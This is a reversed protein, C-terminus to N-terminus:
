DEDFSRERKPPRADLEPGVVAILASTRLLLKHKTADELSDFSPKRGNRVMWNSDHVAQTIEVALNPDATSADPNARMHRLASSVFMNDVPGSLMARQSPSADKILASVRKHQEDELRHNMAHELSTMFEFQGGDDGCEEALRKFDVDFEYSVNDDTDYVDQGDLFAEFTMTGEVQQENVAYEPDDHTAPAVDWTSAVYKVAGEGPARTGWSGTSAEYDVESFGSSTAVFNRALASNDALPGPLDATPPLSELLAIVDDANSDCLTEFDTASTNLLGSAVTPVDLDPGVGTASLAAPSPEVRETEGFGEKGTPHKKRGQRKARASRAQTDTSTTM